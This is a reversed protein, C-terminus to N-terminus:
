RHIIYESSIDRRGHVVALIYIDNRSVQYLLRYSYVFVERVGPENVEPVIRGREPFDRITEATEVIDRVVKKAYFRSDLSIYDHIARLDDRAPHSWKVM